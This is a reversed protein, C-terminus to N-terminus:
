DEPDPDEPALVDPSLPLKVQFDAGQGPATRVSITGGHAAVLGAVIALGLGSGDSARNRAADARYFREFVHQAQEATMGPGDDEVDIVVAPVARELREAEAAGDAWSDAEGAVAALTPRTRGSEAPQHTELTGMSIKVRVPTGAPTHTIANNVLHALVQRLRAEDADAVIPASGPTFILDIPRGPSVIRADHVADAALTFMDVPGHNLPRQQDLRALTLMDEVLMGMRTAESEVRSMLRDLEEPSLGERADGAASAASDPISFGADTRVVPHQGEGGVGDAVTEGSGTNEPASTGPRLRSAGGHLRYHAAFGRIATLPTRLEHAADAIFRRMREESQHAAQEAEEQGHFAREIQALMANLSRGLSSIETPSNGEPVHHDLHGAAVQGATLEIDTLSRLNARVVAFGAVLLVIVIVGSVILNVETLQGITAYVSSVDEGIIVTGAKGSVGVSIVRWRDGSAQGPVTTTLGHNATLQGAVASLSQAPLVQDQSVAGPAGQAPRVIEQPSGSSPIWFVAYGAEALTAKSQAGSPDGSLFGNVAKMAAQQRAPNRLQQDVQGLQYSRMFTVSVVSLVTVAAIVM